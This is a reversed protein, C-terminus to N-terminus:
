ECVRIIVKGKHRNEGFHRFAEPVDALPSIKDIVPTLEGGEIMQKLDSLGRNPGATLLSLRRKDGTYRCDFGVLLLQVIRRTPGGIMVYSGTPELSRKIASMSRSGHCDVILDYREGTDTFDTGAYDLVHDAGVSRIADLKHAADVGTVETRARRAIQIAFTGVGGGAGNILIKQGAQLSSGAKLLGQLALVGAQPVAAAQEFTANAPKM